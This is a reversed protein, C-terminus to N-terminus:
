PDNRDVKIYIHTYIYIYIYLLFWLCRMALHDWQQYIIFIKSLIYNPLSAYNVFLRTLFTIHSARNERLEYKWYVILNWRRNRRHFTVTRFYRNMRVFAHCPSWWWNSRLVTEFYWISISIDFLCKRIIFLYNGRISLFFDIQQLVCLLKTKRGNISLIAALFDVFKLNRIFILSDKSLSFLLIYKRTKSLSRRHVGCMNRLLINLLLLSIVDHLFACFYGHFRRHCIEPIDDNM